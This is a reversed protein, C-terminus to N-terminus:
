SVRRQKNFFLNWIVEIMMLASGFPVSFYPIMMTIRMSPSLQDRVSFSFELGKVVILGLIFILLIQIIKEVVNHLKQPLLNVLFDVGLHAGKRFGIAAGIFSVWIFLYRGMEEAWVPSNGLINRGIVQYFTVLTLITLITVCLTNIIQDFVEKAKIIM